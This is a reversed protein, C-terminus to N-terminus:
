ADKERDTQFILTTREGVMKVGVNKGTCPPGQGQEGFSLTQCECELGFRGPTPAVQEPRDDSHGRSGKM